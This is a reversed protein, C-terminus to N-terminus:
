KKNGLKEKLDNLVAKLEDQNAIVVPFTEKLHKNYTFGILRLGECSSKFAIMPEYLEDKEFLNVFFEGDIESFDLSFGRREAYKKIHGNIEVMMFFRM